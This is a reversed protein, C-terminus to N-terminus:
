KGHIEMMSRVSQCVIVYQWIGNNDRRVVNTGQGSVILALDRAQIVRQPAAVYTQSGHWTALALRTIDEGHAIGEEGIVLVAGVAFLAMLSQPDRLLLSDELLMELEEPTHANTSMVGKYM